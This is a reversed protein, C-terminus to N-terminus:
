SGLLLSIRVAHYQTSLSGFFLCRFQHFQLAMISRYQDPRL